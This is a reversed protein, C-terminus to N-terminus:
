LQLGVNHNIQDTIEGTKWKLRRSWEATAPRESRILILEPTVSKARMKGTLDRLEGPTSFVRLELWDVELLIWRAGAILGNVCKLLNWLGGGGEGRGGEGRRNTM